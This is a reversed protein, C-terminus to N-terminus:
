VRGHAGIQSVPLQWQLLPVSVCVAPPDILLALVVNVRLKGLMGKQIARKRLAPLDKPHATLPAPAGAPATWTSADYGGVGFEKHTGSAHVASAVAAEALSRGPESFQPKEKRLSLVAARALENGADADERAQALKPHM